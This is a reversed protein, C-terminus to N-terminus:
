EVIIKFKIAEKRNNKVKLVYNCFMCFDNSHKEISISGTSNAKIWSSKPPLNKEFKPLRKSDGDIMQAVEFEIEDEQLEFYPLSDSSFRFKV